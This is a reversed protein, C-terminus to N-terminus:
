GGKGKKIKSPAEWFVLHQIPQPADTCRACHGAFALQRKEITETIKPTGGYVEENRKKGRYTWGKAKRLLRTYCGDIRKAQYATM